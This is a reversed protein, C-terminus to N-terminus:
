LAVSSRNDTVLALHTCKLDVTVVIRDAGGQVGQTGACERVSWSRGPVASEHSCREGLVSPINLRTWRLLGPQTGM